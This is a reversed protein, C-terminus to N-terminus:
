PETLKFRLGVLVRFLVDQLAVSAAALIDFFLFLFFLRADDGSNAAAGGGSNAAALWCGAATLWWGATEMSCGSIGDGGLFSGGLFAALRAVAGTLFLVRELRAFAAALESEEPKAVAAAAAEAM